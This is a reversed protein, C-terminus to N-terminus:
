AEDDIEIPNGKHPAGEFLCNHDIGGTGGFKDCCADDRFLNEIGLVHDSEKPKRAGFWVTKVCVRHCTQVDPSIRCFKSVDSVQM